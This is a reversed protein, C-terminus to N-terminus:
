RDDQGDTPGAEEGPAPEKEKAKGHFPNRGMRFPWLFCSVATCKRVESPIGGCCELCNARIAKIPSKKGGLSLLDSKSIFLPNRGIKQGDDTDFSSVELYKDTM